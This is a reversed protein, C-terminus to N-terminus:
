MYGLSRLKEMVHEDEKDQARGDREKDRRDHLENIVEDVNSASSGIPSCCCECGISRYRKNNKAFYLRPLPINELKIYEWIDQETWHLLPHVRIHDTKDGFNTAFLNWGALETDQLAELRADGGSKERSVNWRGNTDRPSFYREKRRIGHEDRRIGVLLADFGNEAAVMKLAETKRAQCCAFTGREHTIHDEDAQKNRAIILNLNWRKAHRDRFSYIEPFKYGTDIHVVPFRVKGREIRM